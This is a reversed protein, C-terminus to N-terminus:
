WNLLCLIRVCKGRIGREHFVYVSISSLSVDSNPDKSDDLKEQNEETGNSKTHRICELSRNKRRLKKIEESKDKLINQLKEIIDKRRASEVM